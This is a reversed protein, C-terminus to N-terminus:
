HLCGFYKGFKEEVEIAVNTLAENKLRESIQMNNTLGGEKGSFPSTNVSVRVGMTPPDIPTCEVSPVKENVM